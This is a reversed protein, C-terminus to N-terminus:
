GIEDADPPQEPQAGLARHVDRLREADAREVLQALRCRLPPKALHRSDPRLGLLLKPRRKCLIQGARRCVRQQQVPRQRQRVLDGLAEARLGGAVCAAEAVAALLERDDRGRLIGRSVIRRNSSSGCITASTSRSSRRATPTM